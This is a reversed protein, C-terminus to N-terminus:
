ALFGFHLPYRHIKGFQKAIHVVKTLLKFGNPPLPLERHISAMTLSSLPERQAFSHRDDDGKMRRTVTIEFMKVEHQLQSM